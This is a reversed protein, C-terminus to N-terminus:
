TGDWGGHSERWMELRRVRETLDTVLQEPVSELDELAAYFTHGSETVLCIEGDEDLGEHVTARVTVQRGPKFANMDVVLVEVDPQEPASELDPPEPASSIQENRVKVHSDGVVVCRHAPGRGMVCITAEVLVKDFPKHTSM